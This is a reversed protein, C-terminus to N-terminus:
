HDSHKKLLYANYYDYLIIRSRDLIIIKLGHDGFGTPCDTYLVNFRSRDSNPKDLLYKVLDRSIMRSDDLEDEDLKDVVKVSKLKVRPMSCSFFSCKRGKSYISDNTILILDDLCKDRKDLREEYDTKSEHISGILLSKVYVVSWIGEFGSLSGPAKISSCGILFILVLTLIKNLM